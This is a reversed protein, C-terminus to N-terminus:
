TLYYRSFVSCPQSCAHMSGEMYVVLYYSCYYCFFAGEGAREVALPIMSLTGEFYTGVGLSLVPDELEGEFFLHPGEFQLLWSVAGLDCLGPLCWCSIIIFLDGALGAAGSLMDLPLTEIVRALSCYMTSM